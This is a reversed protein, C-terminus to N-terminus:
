TRSKINLYPELETCKINHFVTVNNGRGLEQCIHLSIDLSVSSCSRLVVLSWIPPSPSLSSCLPSVVALSLVFVHLVHFLFSDIATYSLQNLM